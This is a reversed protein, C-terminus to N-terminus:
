SPLDFRLNDHLRFCVRRGLNDVTLRSMNHLQQAEHGVYASSGASACQGSSRSLTALFDSSSSSLASVRCCCALFGEATSQM